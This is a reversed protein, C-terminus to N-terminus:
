SMVSIMTVMMVASKLPIPPTADDHTVTDIMVDTTVTTTDSDKVDTSSILSLAEEWWSRQRGWQGGEGEQGGKEKQWTGRRRRLRESGVASRQKLRCKM